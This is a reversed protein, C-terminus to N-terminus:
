QVSDVAARGGHTVHRSGTKIVNLKSMQQRM